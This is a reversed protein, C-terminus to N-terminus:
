PTAAQTYLIIESLQYGQQVSVELKFYGYTVATALKFNREQYCIPEVVSLAQTDLLIWDIGNESAYFKWQTPIKEVYSSDNNTSVLSYSVIPTNISCQWIISESGDTFLKTQINSDFLATYPYDTYDAPGSVATITEKNNKIAIHTPDRSFDVLMTPSNIPDTTHKNLNEPDTFWAYFVLNGTYADFIDIRIDFNHNGDVQKDTPYQWDGLDLIVSGNTVNHVLHINQIEVAEGDLTIVWQYDMNVEWAPKPENKNPTPFLLEYIGNECAEMYFGFTWRSNFVSVDNRFDYDLSAAANQSAGWLIDIPTISPTQPSDTKPTTSPTSTQSVSSEPSITATFPPTTASITAAPPTTSVTKTSPEDTCAVLLCVLFLLPLLLITKKM